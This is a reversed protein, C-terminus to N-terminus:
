EGALKFRLEINYGSMSRHAENDIKPYHKSHDASTGLPHRPARRLVVNFDGNPYQVYHCGPNGLPVLIQEGARLSTGQRAGDRMVRVVKVVLIGHCDGAGGCSPPEAMHREAISITAVAADYALSEANQPPTIPVMEGSWRCAEVVSASMMLGLSAAGCLIIASTRNAIILELKM